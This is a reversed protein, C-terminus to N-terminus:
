HGPIVVITFHEEGGSIHTLSLAYSNPSLHQILEECGNNPADKLLPSELTPRAILM